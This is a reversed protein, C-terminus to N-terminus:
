VVCIGKTKGECKAGGGRTGPKPRIETKVAKPRRAKRVLGLLKGGYGNM